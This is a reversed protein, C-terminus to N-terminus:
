YTYFLFIRVLDLLIFYYDCLFTILKVSTLVRTLVSSAEVLLWVQLQLGVGPVTKSHLPLIIFVILKRKAEVFPPLSLSQSSDIKPINQFRVQLRLNNIVGSRSSMIGYSVSLRVIKNRSACSYNIFLYYEYISRYTFLVIM